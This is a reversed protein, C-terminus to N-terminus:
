DKPFFRRMPAPLALPHVQTRGPVAGLLSDLTHTNQARIQERYTFARDILTQHREVTFLPAGDDGKGVLQRALEEVTDAVLAGRTEGLAYVNAFASSTLVPTGVSLAFPLSGTLRDVLYWSEGAPWIIIFAATKAYDFAQLRFPPRLPTFRAAM